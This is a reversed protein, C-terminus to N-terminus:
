AARGEARKAQLDIDMLAVSHEYTVPDKWMLEAAMFIEAKEM